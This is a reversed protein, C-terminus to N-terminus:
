AFHDEMAESRLDGGEAQAALKLQYRSIWEVLSRVANLSYWHIGLVSDRIDAPSRAVYELFESPEYRISPVSQENSDLGYRTQLYTRSAHLSFKAAIRVVRELRLPGVTGIYIPLRFGRTRLRTLWRVFAMPDFILNTVAYNAYVQRSLLSRELREDSLQSHGEPSCAIGIRRPTPDLKDLVRLLASVTAFQGVPREDDGQVLFLEDIGEQSCTRWLSTFHSPDRVARAAFHPVVNYGARKLAVATEVTVEIGLKPSCTVTLTSGRPVVALVKERDVSPLVEIRSAALIRRLFSLDPVVATSTTGYPFDTMWHGKAYRSATTKPEARLRVAVREPVQV